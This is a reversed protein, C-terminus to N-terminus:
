TATPGTVVPPGGDSHGLEKLRRYHSITASTLTPYEVHPLGSAQVVKAVVTTHLQPLQHRPAVPKLHHALHHTMGGTLWRMPLSGTNFSATTAVLHKSWDKPAPQEDPAYLGENIHGVVLVIAAQVAGLSMAVMFYLAFKGPGLLIGYPSIVLAWFAKEFLWQGLRVRFPPVELGIINGKRVYTIQSDLEGVWAFAYLFWAYFHQYRHIPKREIGPHMRVTTNRTAEDLPYVQSSRHHVRHKLTWHQVFFGLPIATQTALVNPWTKRSFRRHGADHLITLTGTAFTLSLPLAALLLWPWSPAILAVALMQAHNLLGIAAWDRWPEGRHRDSRRASLRRAVGLTSERDASEANGGKGARREFRSTIITM